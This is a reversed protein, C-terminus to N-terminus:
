ATPRRPCGYEIQLDYLAILLEHWDRNKTRGRNFSSVVLQNDVDIFVQARRFGDPCFQLLLNYLAYTEKQNIHKLLWKPPFAGGAEFPTAWPVSWM